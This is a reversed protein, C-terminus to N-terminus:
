WRARQARGMRQPRHPDLDPLPDRRPYRGLHRRPPQSRSLPAEIACKCAPCASTSPLRTSSRCTPSRSSASTARRATSCPSSSGSFHLDTDHAGGDHWRGDGDGDGSSDPHRVAAEPARAADALPLALRSVARPRAHSSGPHEDHRWARALLYTALASGDRGLASARRLGGVGAERDYGACARARKRVM